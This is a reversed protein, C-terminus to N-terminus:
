GMQTNFFPQNSKKIEKNKSMSQILVILKRLRNLKFRFFLIFFNFLKPSKLM